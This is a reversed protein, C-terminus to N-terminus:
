LGERVLNQFFIYPMKKMMTRDYTHGREYTHLSVFSLAFYFKQGFNHPLHSIPSLLIQRCIHISYRGYGVESSGNKL